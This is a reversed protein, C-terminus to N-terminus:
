DGEYIGDAKGRGGRQISFVFEPSILCRKANEGVINQFSIM